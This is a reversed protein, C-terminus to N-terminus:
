VDRSNSKRGRTQRTQTMLAELADLERRLVPMLAPTADVQDFLHLVQDVSRQIVGAREPSIRRLLLDAGAEVLVRVVAERSQLPEHRRKGEGQIVRLAPGRPKPAPEPAPRAEASFPLELQLHAPPEKKKM